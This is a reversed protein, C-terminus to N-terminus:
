EAVRRSTADTKGKKTLFAHCAVLRTNASNDGVFPGLGLYPSVKIRLVIMAIAAAAASPMARHRGASHRGMTTAATVATTATAAATATAMKSAAAAM